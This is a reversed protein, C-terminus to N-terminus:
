YYNAIKEVFTRTCVSNFNNRFVKYDKNNNYISEKKKGNEWLRNEGGGWLRNKTYKNKYLYIKIERFAKNVDIAFIWNEGKVPEYTNREKNIQGCWM